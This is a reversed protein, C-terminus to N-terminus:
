LFFCRLPLAPFQGLRRICLRMVGDSVLMLVLYSGSDKSSKMSQDLLEHVLVPPLLSTPLLSCPLARGSGGQQTVQELTQAERHRLERIQLFWRLHASGLAM